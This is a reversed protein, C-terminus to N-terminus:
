MVWLLSLTGGLYHDSAGSATVIATPDVNTSLFYGTWDFAARLRLNAVVEVSLGLAADLSLGSTNPFYAASGIEGKGVLVMLGVLLEGTLTGTFVYKLGAAARPGSYAVSPINPRPAGTNASEPAIAFTQTAYGALADILLSQGVPFRAQVGLRFRQAQTGYRSDDQKSALGIGVEGDLFLGFWSGAGTTFHAGPFWAANFAVAGAFPLSYSALADSAGAAWSFSRSFAKFGVGTHVAPLPQPKSESASSSSVEAPPTSDSSSPSSAAPEDPPKTAPVVAAEPAPTRPADAVPPDARPPDAPPPATKPEAGPAKGQALAAFLADAADNPLAKFKKPPKFTVTDLPTGDHGSLVQLTIYKGGAQAQIVAVAKAPVTVDRVEKATPTPGLSQKLPVPTYKKSLEKNLVKAVNAPANVLVPKKAALATTSVALVLVWTLRM